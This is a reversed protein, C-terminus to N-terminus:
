EKMRLWLTQYPGLALNGSWPNEMQRGTILDLCASASLGNMDERSIRVNQARDSINHLCLVREEGGPSIRVLTFIGQGVDLVHQQGHPHFAPSASRARLLQAYRHFVAHRVSAQDALESEFTSLDFKQRNITRNRGTLDV